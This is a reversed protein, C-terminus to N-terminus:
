ERIYLSYAILVLGLFQLTRVALRYFDQQPLSLVRFQILLSGLLSLAYAAGFLLIMGTSLLYMQKSQYRRLGRYALFAIFLGVLSSGGALLFTALEILRLGFVATM